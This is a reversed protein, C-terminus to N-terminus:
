DAHRRDGREFWLSAMAVGLLTLWSLAGGLGLYGARADSSLGIMTVAGGITVVLGALRWWGGTRALLWGITMAAVGLLAFKARVLPILWDITAQTGPLADMIAFLQVGELEDFLAALLMAVIGAAAIKSGRPRMAMLAACVFLTYAPIFVLADVWTAHRMAAVFLGTDPASDFLAAVDAPTRVIEFAIISGAGGPSDPIALNAIQGFYISTAITVIGAITCALWWARTRSM